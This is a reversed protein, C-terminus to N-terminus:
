QKKKVMEDYGDPRKIQPWDKLDYPAMCFFCYVYKDTHEKSPNANEARCDWCTYKPCAEIM